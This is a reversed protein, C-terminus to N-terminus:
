DRPSPSTYLLCDSFDDEGAGLEVGAAIDSGIRDGITLLGDRWHEREAFVNGKILKDEKLKAIQLMSMGQYAPRLKYTVYTGESDRIEVAYLGRSDYDATKGNEYGGATWWHVWSNKTTRDNGKGKFLLVPSPQKPCCCKQTSAAKQAVSLYIAKNFPVPM